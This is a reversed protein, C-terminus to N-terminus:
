LEYMQWVFWWSNRNRGFFMAVEFGNLGDSDVLHKMLHQPQEDKRGDKREDEETQREAGGGGLRDTQGQLLGQRRLGGLLLALWDALQTDARWAALEQLSTEEAATLQLDEEVKHCGLPVGKLLELQEGGERTFIYTPAATVSARLVFM